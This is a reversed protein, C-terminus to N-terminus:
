DILSMTYVSVMSTASNFSLIPPQMTSVPELFRVNTYDSHLDGDVFGRSSTPTATRVSKKRKGNPARTTAEEETSDIIEPNSAEYGRRKQTGTTPQELAYETRNNPLRKGVAINDQEQRAMMLRKKNQQEHLRLQMQHDQLMRIGGKPPVQSPDMPDSDAPEPDSPYTTQLSLQVERRALLEM